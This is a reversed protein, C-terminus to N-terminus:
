KTDLVARVKKSLESLNFPKQIFAKCGRDLIAQAQGNISYGSALLVKISPNIGKLKDYTEGGSMEPMVMDLIVLDIRDQNEGYIELAEKGSNVGMVKYGLRNLLLTAVDIIMKEDDVLLVTESGKLTEEDTVNKLEIEKESCPLYINFTTGEGKDSYLNILGGHNKIIGYASALGLGTGRGMKKTTFFPDFVRQQTAEDMGVGTDTVSIKVYEGPEVNFSSALDKDLSVDETLLYLDGGGPMSQWANVYLNLLVQEIQGHDVEVSRIDEQFKTHIKIDKRTRGFMQSSEDVLENLDTPKVEYKGGRAFGLLQKTLEAGNQVYQEINKLKVHHPHDFDIELLMLAASGEIGMLLNNFDHAIGGALTGIAEMRQAQQFQAELRRHETIDKFLGVLGTVEGNKDINPAGCASFLRTSGDKHVMTIDTAKITERKDIIDKFIRVYHGAEEQKTFNVFYEGLVEERKYGLIAEWAPNVYTFSGDLALTYIIDPANEGLSKFNEESELLAEEARKRERIEQKLKENASILESAREEVLEELHHRHKELEEEARTREDIESQLKLQENEMGRQFTQRTSEVAYSMLALLGYVILFRIKVETEYPFTGIISGHDILFFLALFFASVCWLLGEKKGLLYFAILPFLLVWLIKSGHAGGIMMTSLFYSGLLFAFIRYVPLARELYRLSFLCTTMIAAVLFLALSSSFHSRSFHLFGFCILTPIGALSFFALVIRKRQEELSQDTRSFLADFLTHIKGYIKKAVKDM